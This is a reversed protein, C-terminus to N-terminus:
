TGKKSIKWSIQNQPEMLLTYYPSFVKLRIEIYIEYIAWYFLIKIKLSLNLLWKTWFRKLLFDIKFPHCQVINIPIGNPTKWVFLLKCGLYFFDCKFHYMSAIRTISHKILLLLITFFTSEAIYFLFSYM